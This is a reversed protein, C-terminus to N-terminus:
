RGRTRRVPLQHAASDLPSPLAPPVASVGLGRFLDLAQGCAKDGVPDLGAITHASSVRGSHDSPEPHAIPTLATATGVDM